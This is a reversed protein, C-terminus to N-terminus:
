ATPATGQETGPTGDARVWRVVLEDKAGFRVLHRGVVDELGAMDGADGDVRLELAGEACTVETRGAGLVIWGSNSEESWEGGEHRGLHNVLQKGYRSPRDTEVTATSTTRTM